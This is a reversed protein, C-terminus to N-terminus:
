IPFSIVKPQWNRGGPQDALILSMVRHEHSNSPSSPWSFPRFRTTRRKWAGRCLYAVLLWWTATVRRWRRGEDAGGDERNRRAQARPLLSSLLVAPPPCPFSLSVVAERPLPLVGHWLCREIASTTFSAPRFVLTFAATAAAAATPAAADFPAVRSFVPPLPATNPLEGCLGGSSLRVGPGVDYRGTVRSSAERLPLTTLTPPLDLRASNGGEGSVGPGSQYAGSTMWPGAVGFRRGDVEEDVEDAPVGAAGDAGRTIDEACTPVNPDESRNGLSGYRLGPTPSYSRLAASLAALLADVATIRVKPRM